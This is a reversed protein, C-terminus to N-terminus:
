QHQEVLKEVTALKVCVIFIETALRLDDLNPYTPSIRIVADKPDKGYPFPAGAPTMVVGAEKARGVVSKACGDITEYTIFYGGKPTCWSGAGRGKLEQDFMSLIMEFKPRMSAAHKKMHEAIGDMDKFFLVHRLQNIKDFGISQNTLQKKIDALNNASAAVAALGAGAFSIKSTSLFEYVMDSSGANECAEFIDLLQDQEEDYLHHVCYANDWYIRFDPAAPKLAAFRRVTDDSYSIGQPISFKTVCWIGKVAADGNVLEEVMDMDPGGPGMPINIMEVGFSETISFHRDYGPVPCLFKVKDLRCWPTSGMVGHTFSRSIFDYMVNLSSNGYVIVNEPKCGAMGAFLAKAEPLGDLAGYNRCDLGEKSVLPTQSSLIDMMPMSLDLQEASPKGRSMDLSLGREQYARYAAELSEKEALLEEKSMEQYSKM